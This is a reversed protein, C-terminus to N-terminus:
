INYNIRVDIIPILDIWQRFQQENLRIERKVMKDDSKYLLVGIEEDIGAIITEANGGFRLDWKSLSKLHMSFTIEESFRKLACYQPLMLNIGIKTPVLTVGDYGLKCIRFGVSVYGKYEAIIVYLDTDSLRHLTNPDLM